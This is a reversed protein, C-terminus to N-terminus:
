ALPAKPWVPGIPGGELLQEVLGAGLTRLWEERITLIRSPTDPLELGLPGVLVEPGAKCDLLDHNASPQRNTTARPRESPKVLLPSYKLSRTSDTSARSSGYASYPCSHSAQARSRVRSLLGSYGM